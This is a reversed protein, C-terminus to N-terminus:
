IKLGKSRASDALIKIRGIYRLQGRDFVVQKIKKVLCKKAIDFGVQIAQENKDVKKFKLSNSSALVEGQSNIVQAYINTLSRYVKFIPYNNKNLLKVINKNNKSKM